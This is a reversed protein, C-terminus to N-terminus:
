YGQEIYQELRVLRREDKPRGTGRMSAAIHLANAVWIGTTQDQAFQANHRAVLAEWYIRGKRYAIFEEPLFDCPFVDFRGDGSRLYELPVVIDDDYRYERTRVEWSDRARLHAFNHPTVALDVDSGESLPLINRVYAASGHTIM